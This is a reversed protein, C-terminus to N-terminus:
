SGVEMVLSWGGIGIRWRGIAVGSRLGLGHAKGKEKFIHELGKTTVQGLRRRRLETM